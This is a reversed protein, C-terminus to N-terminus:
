RLAPAPRMFTAALAYLVGITGLMVLPPVVRYRVYLAALVLTALAAAVAHPRLLAPEAAAKAHLLGLAGVLVLLISMTWGLADDADAISPSLPLPLRAERMATLAREIGPDPPPPVVNGISHVVATLLCLVSAAGFLRYGRRFMQEESRRM